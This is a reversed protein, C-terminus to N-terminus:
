SGTGHENFFYLFIVFAPVYFIGSGHKHVASPVTRTGAYYKHDLSHGSNDVICDAEMAHQSEMQHLGIHVM